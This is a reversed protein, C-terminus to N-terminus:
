CLHAIFFSLTGPLTPEVLSPFVQAMDSCALSLFVIDPFKDPVTFLSESSLHGDSLFYGNSYNVSILYM